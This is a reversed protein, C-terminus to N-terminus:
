DEQKIEAPEGAVAEEAAPEAKPEDIIEKAKNKEDIALLEDISMPVAPEGAASKRDKKVDEADGDLAEPELLARISLSVRKKDFDIDTIIAKVEDGVALVDQPKAIRRDSIQSIHILGDIGPIIQAFAGFATLGSVKVEAISGKAYNSRLVEWPNDEPKRYGLSVKKKERDFSKIYVDVFDGINVVDSPHKIRRWALESRHVMGDVGGLDVFAAFSTISKVTGTYTQGIAVQDWFAADAMKRNARIVSSISGVARRRKRDVEIVQYQVETYLMEELPSGKPTGTLSAPIFVRIGNTSALVGKEFVEVVKGTLVSGDKEANKIENWYKVADFLRKSLMITGELDNTKMIILNIKDGIELEKTPDADSDASYEELPIYGTQKRGIDVQVETPTVRLVTGVVERDTNMKKLNEELAAFFAADESMVKNTEAAPEIENNEATGIEAINDVAFDIENAAEPANEFEDVTEKEAVDAIEKEKEVMNEMENEIESM